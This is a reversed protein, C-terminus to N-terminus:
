IYFNPAKNPTSDRDSEYHFDVTLGFVNDTNDTGGNSVRRVTVLFLEDPETLILKDEEGVESILHRWAGNPTGEVFYSTEATFYEQNHGLARSVQFEWKVTNSDNGDTSWHIHIYASGGIKIDHNVHFASVFAYQGIEFATEMRLGSSGFPLLTPANLSGVPLIVGTLDRYGEQTRVGLDRFNEDVESPLLVRNVESQLTIM